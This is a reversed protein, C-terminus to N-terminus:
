HVAVGSPGNLGTDPGSITRVPAVDGNAGAAYVTVTNNGGNTVYIEGSSDLAIGTPYSLATNSGAILAIPAVNGNAGSAYVDISNHRADCVNINGSADIVVGRPEQLQTKSGTIIAFPRVNGNDSAAFVEILGTYYSNYTSTVYINNKEDLGIGTPQYLETQGGAIERVPAADGDAKARYFTLSDEGYNRGHIIRSQNVAIIQKRPTVGSQIAVASTYSLQTGSGSISQIPAANGVSNASYVTVRAGSDVCQNMYVVCNAVYIKRSPSVTLGMPGSLGTNSGSITRVPVADGNAGLPYVTV